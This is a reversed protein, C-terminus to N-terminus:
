RRLSLRSDGRKYKAEDEWVVKVGTAGANHSLAEIGISFAITSTSYMKPYPLLPPLSSFSDFLGRSILYSEASGNQPSLTYISPFAASFLGLMTPSLGPSELSSPQSLAILEIGEKKCYEPLKYKYLSLLM